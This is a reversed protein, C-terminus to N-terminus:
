ARPENFVFTVNEPQISINDVVQLGVSGAQSFDTITSNIFSYTALDFIQESVEVV